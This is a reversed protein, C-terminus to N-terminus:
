LYVMQHWPMNKFCDIAVSLCCVNLLLNSKGSLSIYSLNQVARWCNLVVLQVRGGARQMLVKCGLHPWTAPDRRPGPVLPPYSSSPHHITWWFIGWFSFLIRLVFYVVAATLSIPCSFSIWSFSKRPSVHRNNKTSLHVWALHTRPLKCVGLSALLHCDWVRNKNSGIEKKKAISLLLFCPLLHSFRSLKIKWWKTSCCICSTNVPLVQLLLGVHQLAPVGQLIQGVVSRCTFLGRHQTNTFSTM